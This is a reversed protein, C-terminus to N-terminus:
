CEVLCPPLGPNSCQVDLGAFFGSHLMPQIRSDL